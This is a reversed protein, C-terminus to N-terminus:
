PCLPGPPDRTTPELGIDNLEAFRGITVRDKDLEVEFMEGEPTHVKLVPLLGNM